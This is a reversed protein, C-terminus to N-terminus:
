RTPWLDVTEDRSEEALESAKWGKTTVLEKSSDRHRVRNFTTEEAREGGVRGFILSGVDPGSKCTHKVEVRGSRCM